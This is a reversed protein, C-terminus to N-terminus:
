IIPKCLILTQSKFYDDLFVEQIIDFKTKILDLLNKENTLDSNNIIFILFGDTKLNDQLNLIIDAYNQESLSVYLVDVQVTKITSINDFFM